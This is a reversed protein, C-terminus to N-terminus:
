SLAERTVKQVQDANLAYVTGDTAFLEFRTKGNAIKNRFLTILRGEYYFKGSTCAKELLEQPSMPSNTSIQGTEPTKASGKPRGIVNSKEPKPVLPNVDLGVAAKPLGKEVRMEQIKDGLAITDLKDLEELIATREEPAEEALLIAADAMFANRVEDEEVPFPLIIVDGIAADEALEPNAELDQQELVHPLGKSKEMVEKIFNVKDANTKVDEESEPAFGAKTYMEIIEMLEAAKLKPLDAHTFVIM